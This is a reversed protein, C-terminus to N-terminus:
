LPFPTFGSVVYKPLQIGVQAVAVVDPDLDAALALCDRETSSAQGSQDPIAGLEISLELTAEGAGSAVASSGCILEIRHEEMILQLSPGGDAVQVGLGRGFVAPAGLSWRATRGYFSRPQLEFAVAKGPKLGRLKLRITEFGETQETLTASFPGRRWELPQQFPLCAMVKADANVNCYGDINRIENKCKLFASLSFSDSSNRGGVQKSGTQISIVSEAVEIGHVCSSQLGGLDLPNLSFGVEGFEANGISWAVGPTNLELSLSQEHIVGSFKLVIPVLTAEDSM